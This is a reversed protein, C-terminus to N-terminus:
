FADDDEFENVDEHVDNKHSYAIVCPKVCLMVPVCCVTIVMMLQMIFTQFTQTGVLPLDDSGETPHGMQLAMTIM